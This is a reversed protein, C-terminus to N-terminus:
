RNTQGTTENSPYHRWYEDVTAQIHAITEEDRKPEFLHRFRGQRKLYNEVPEFKRPVQTHAVEGCIAEKLPWIGSEVALRAIEV